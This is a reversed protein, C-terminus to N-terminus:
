IYAKLDDINIPGSVKIKLYTKGDDNSEISLNNLDSLSLKMDSTDLITKTSSKLNEASIKYNSDLTKVNDEYVDVVNNAKNEDFGSALLLSKIDNAGIKAANEDNSHQEIYIKLEKSIDLAANFPIRGNCDSIKDLSTQFISLEVDSSFGFESDLVNSAFTTDPNTPKKNYILVHNDTLEFKSYVPYMFGTFPTGIGRVYNDDYKIENPNSSIYLGLNANKVDCLSCIIFPLELGELSLDVDTTRRGSSDKVPTNYQCSMLMIAYEKELYSDYKSIIHNILRMNKDNNMMFSNNVDDLLKIIEANDNFVCERIGKGLQGSLTKKAINIFNEEEKQNWCNSSLSIGESMNDLPCFGKTEMAHISKNSDIYYIGINNIILDKATMKFQRKFLALDKKNM